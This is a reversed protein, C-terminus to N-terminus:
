GRKPPIRCGGSLTLTGGREWVSPSADVFLELDAGAGRTMDGVDVVVDRNDERTILDRTPLPLQWEVSFPNPNEQPPDAALGGRGSGPASPSVVPTAPAALATLLAVSPVAPNMLAQGSGGDPDVRYRPGVAM